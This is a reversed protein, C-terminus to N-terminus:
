ITGTILNRRIEVISQVCFEILDLHQSQHFVDAAFNSKLVLAARESDINFLSTACTAQYLFFVSFLQVSALPDIILRQSRCGAFFRWAADGAAFYDFCHTSVSDGGSLAPL